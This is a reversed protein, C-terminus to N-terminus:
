AFGLGNEKAFEKLYSTQGKKLNEDIVIFTTLNTLKQKIYAKIEAM